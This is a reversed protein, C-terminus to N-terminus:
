RERSKRRAKLQKALLDIEKKSNASIYEVDSERIRLVVSIEDETMGAALLRRIVEYQKDEAGRQKGSDYHLQITRNFMAPPMIGMWEDATLSEGETLKELVSKKTLDDSM